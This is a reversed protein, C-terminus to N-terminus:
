LSASGQARRHGHTSCEGAASGARGRKLLLLLSHLPLLLAAAHECCPFSLCIHSCCHKEQSCPWRASLSCHILAEGTSQQAGAGARPHLSSACPPVHLPQTESLLGPFGPEAAPWSSCVPKCSPIIQAGQSFSATSCINKSLFYLFLIFISFRKNDSAILQIQLNLSAAQSFGEPPM